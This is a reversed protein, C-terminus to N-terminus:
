MQHGVINEERGWIIEKSGLNNEKVGFKKEFFSPNPDPKTNSILGIQGM